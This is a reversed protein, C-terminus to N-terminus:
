AMTSIAMISKLQAGAALFQLALTISFSRPDFFLLSTAQDHCHQFYIMQRNLKATEACYVSKIHGNFFTLEITQDSRVTCSLSSYKVEKCTHVFWRLSDDTQIALVNGSFASNLDVLGSNGPGELVDTKEFLKRHQIINFYPKMIMM